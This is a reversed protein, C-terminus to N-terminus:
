IAYPRSKHGGGTCSAAIATRPTRLRAYVITLKGGALGAKVHVPLRGTSNAAAKGM